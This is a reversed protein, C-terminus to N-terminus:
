SRAAEASVPSVLGNFRSMALEVSQTLAFPLADSAREVMLRVTANEDPRFRSLVFDKDDRDNTERGIGLRLRPFESTGLSAIVSKIGNHGGDSGRPRIRLAGFPLQFDDCVIWIRKPDLYADARLARVADGSRNMYTLPKVLAVALSEIRVPILIAHYRNRRVSSGHRRALEDVVEYGINHRTGAYEAGPNGLGVIAADYRPM